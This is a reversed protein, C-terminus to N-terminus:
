CSLGQLANRAMRIRFGVLSEGPSITHVTTKLDGKQSKPAEIRLFDSEAETDFALCVVRNDKTVVTVKTIKSYVICTHSITKRGFKPSVDGNSMTFQISEIANESLGWGLRSIRYNM